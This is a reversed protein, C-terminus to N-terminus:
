REVEAESPSEVPCPVLSPWDGRWILDVQSQLHSNDWTFLFLRDDDLAYPLRFELETVPADVDVSRVLELDVRRASEALKDPRSFMLFQELFSSFFAGNDRVVRITRPGTRVVRDTSIGELQPSVTLACALVDERGYRLKVGQTFGVANLPSQNVIYIRADVPPDPIAALLDRYVREAGNAVRWMLLHEVCVIIACLAVLGRAARAVRSRRAPVESAWNVVAAYVAGGILAVGVCALYVNREGPMALLAPAAFLASFAMASRFAPTGGAIRWCAALVALAGAICVAFFLVNNRWFDALYIADVQVFFVFDLLYLALNFLIQGVAGPASLDVGYPPPLNGLGGFLRFRQALYLVTVLGVAVAGWALSRPRYTAAPGRWRLLECLVIVAPWMIATEKCGLGFAFLLLSLFAFRRGGSAEQWRLYALTAGMVAACALLDFRGSIWLVAESHVPHIAFITAAALAGRASDLLRRGLRWVLLTCLLHLAVNTLHYGFPNMGWVAYDLAFTLIALPRYFPFDFNPTWWVGSADQDMTPSDLVAVAGSWTLDHVTDLYTYDDIIFPNFLGPLHLAGTLVLVWALSRVGSGSANAKDLGMLVVM